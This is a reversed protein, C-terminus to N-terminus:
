LGSWFTQYDPGASVPEALPPLMKIHLSDPFDVGMLLAEGPPLTPIIKALNLNHSACAREVISRDADSILRHVIWTGMQSLIGDPIDRPRQTAICLNLSYKRGEKSILAFADLRHASYEDGVEGNLFQHAEDLVILLPKSKFKELRAVDLLSRGIANAVIERVNHAFSLYQLSVCLVREQGHELFDHMEQFLSRRNGPYFVSALSRATIIDHIKTILPGCFSQDIGNLGGWVLPETPSSQPSVCEHQIQATLKTIDFDAWPSEVESMFREYAALYDRKNRHAKPITGDAALIPALRALKLSKMAATLKPGQSQGSPKFIATLDGLTLHYYPLAVEKGVLGGNAPAGIHLHRVGDTLRRFEGSADILIIRSDFRACEEVLRAIGWSKGSGTAGVIACHRGFLVEPPVNLVEDKSNVLRAIRLAVPAKNMPLEDRYFEKALMM